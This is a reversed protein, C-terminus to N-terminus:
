GALGALRRALETQSEDFRGEGAYVEVLGWCEGGSPLCVMLLSEFGLKELLEAETPDADADLRSVRRPEGSEVVERTLPYDSILYEHGHELPRGSTTYEDLGVLLDGLVRSVVCATAELLEVLERCTTALLGRVTTERDLRAATEEFTNSM